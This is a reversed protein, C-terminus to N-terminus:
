MQQGNVSTSVMRAKVETDRPSTQRAIAGPKGFYGANKGGVETDGEKVQYGERGM